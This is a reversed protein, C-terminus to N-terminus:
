ELSINGSFLSSWTFEHTKDGSAAATESDRVDRIQLRLGSHIVAADMSRFFPPSLPQPYLRWQMSDFIDMVEESITEEHPIGRSGRNKLGFFYIRVHPSPENWVRALANMQAKLKGGDSAHSLAFQGAGANVAFVGRCLNYGISDISSGFQGVGIGYAPGSPVTCRGGEWIRVIFNNSGISHVVGGQFRVTMAQAVAANSNAAQRQLTLNRSSAGVHPSRSRSSGYVLQATTAGQNGENDISGAEDIRGGGRVHNLMSANRRSSVGASTSRRSRMPGAHAGSANTASQNQSLTTPEPMATVSLTRGLIQMAYACYESEDKHFVNCVRCNFGM